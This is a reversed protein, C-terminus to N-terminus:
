RPSCRCSRSNGERPVGQSSDLTVKQYDEFREQLAARAQRQVEQVPDPEDELRM